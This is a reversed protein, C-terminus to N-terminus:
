HAATGFDPQRQKGQVAKREAACYLGYSVKILLGEDCMRVLYCRPIGIETFDRTRVVGQQIAFAVARDRLSPKPGGALRLAESRDRDRKRLKPRVPANQRLPIAFEYNADEGIGTLWKQITQGPIM